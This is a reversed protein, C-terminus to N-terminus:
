VTGLPQQLVHYYTILDQASLIQQVLGSCPDLLMIDTGNYAVHSGRELKATSSGAFTANLKWRLAIVNGVGFHFEDTFAYTEFDARALKIFELFASANGIRLPASGNGTPFRDQYVEISPMVTSSLFSYNGAWLAYWNTVVQEHSLPTLKTWPCPVGAANGANSNSASTLDFDISDAGSFLSYSNAAITGPVALLSLLASKTSLRM